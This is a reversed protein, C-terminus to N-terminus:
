GNSVVGGFPRVVSMARYADTVSKECDEGSGWMRMLSLPCPLPLENLEFIAVNSAGSMSRFVRDVANSRLLKSLNEPSWGKDEFQELVIVHNESIFGKHKALWERPVHAAVLRRRQDSSTLRQLLVSPVTTVGADYISEVAVYLDPRAIRQERGHIFEGSSSIDTAWVLPVAMGEQVPKHNRKFRDRKDRYAVLSGVRAKYGYDKLRFQSQEAFFLTDADDKARPVAWPKGSNRLRCAGVGVFGGKEDLVCVSTATTELNPSARRRLTTIITEQEVDLFMTSRNSLVDMQLVESCSLIRRRLKSFYQGSLYSTPTLLGVLGDARTLELSRDIFLGYINPQGEIVGRYKGEYRKVEEAKLKRYPPNCAVVDYNGLVNRATLGDAHKISISPLYGARDLLPALAMLLFQQSLYILTEDLDSGSLQAEIRRVSESPSVGSREHSQAMQQAIPVLFAAGGCAPDHWHDEMLSAGHKVLNGIVRDALQPPTFFLARATRTEEGVWIAYATALWFAAENFLHQARLWEAFERVSEQALLDKSGWPARSVLQPYAALQWRYLV